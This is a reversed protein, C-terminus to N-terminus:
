DIVPRKLKEGWRKSRDGDIEGFIASLVLKMPLEGAEDVDSAFPPGAIMMLAGTKV